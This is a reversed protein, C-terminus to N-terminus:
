TKYIYDKSIKDLVASYDSSILMCTHNEEYEAAINTIVKRARKVVFKSREKYYAFM